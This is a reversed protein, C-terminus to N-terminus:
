LVVNITRHKHCTKLQDIYQESCSLLLLTYIKSTKIVRLMTKHQIKKKNRIIYEEKFKGELYMNRKALKLLSEKDISKM